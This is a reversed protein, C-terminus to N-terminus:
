RDEADTREICDKRIYRPSNIKSSVPYLELLGEDAPVLLTKNRPNAAHLWTKWNEPELIVPMREHIDGMERNAKTTVITCSIVPQLEAVPPQWSEWLGAFAMPANDSRHIYWPQKRGDPLQKWEYFGNAPVLCHSHELAHRFYPKVSLSEARANIPRVEPIQASWRPILGWLANTLRSSDHDGLLVTLQSAPAINYGPSFHYGESEEFPLELQRLLEIFFKLEFFGFRGCM